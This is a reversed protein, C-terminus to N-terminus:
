ANICRHLKQFFREPNIIKGHKATHRVCDRTIIYRGFVVSHAHIYKWIWNLVLWPNRPKILLRMHSINDCKDSIKLDTPYHFKSGQICGMCHCEKRRNTILRNNFVWYGNFNSYAHADLQGANNDVGNHSTVFSCRITPCKTIVDAIITTNGKYYYTNKGSTCIPIPIHLKIVHHYVDYVIVKPYKRYRAFCVTQQYMMHDLKPPNQLLGLTYADIPITSPWQTHVCHYTSPIIAFKMEGPSVCWECQPPVYPLWLVCDTSPRLLYTKIVPWLDAPFASWLAPDLDEFTTM